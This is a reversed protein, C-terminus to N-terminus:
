KKLKKRIKNLEREKNKIPSLIRKWFDSNIFERIRQRAIKNLKHKSLYQDGIVKKYEDEANDRQWIIKFESYQKKLKIQEKEWKKPFDQKLKDTDIFCLVLDYDYNSVVRKCQRLIIKPSCGSANDCKIFWNATHYQFKENEVLADLFKKDRKGEGFFLCSYKEKIIIKRM